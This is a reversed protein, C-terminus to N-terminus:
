SSSRGKGREVLRKTYVAIGVPGYETFFRRLPAADAGAKQAAADLMSLLLVARNFEDCAEAQAWYAEAMEQLGFSYLFGYLDAGAKRSMLKKCGGDYFADPTQFLAQLLEELSSVRRGGVDLARQECFSNEFWYGALEPERQSLDEISRVLAKTEEEAQIGQTYDLWHSVCQRRLLESCVSPNRSRRMKEALERLGAFVYGKWVLPGPTFLHKLFVALGKDRDRMRWTEEAKQAARALDPRFSKFFNEFYKEYLLEVGEKWHAADKAIGEFLSQEDRYEEGLMRFPRPWEDEEAGGTYSHNELWRKVDAYGFRYRSDYRCLGCLLNELERRHPDTRTLPLRGQRVALTMMASTEKTETSTESWYVFHGEFLSGLTVGLSYYDSAEDFFFASGRASLALVTEPARYGDTGATHVTAGARALKAVGFDGIVVRGDLLYGAGNSKYGNYLTDSCTIEWGETDLPKISPMLTLNAADGKDTLWDDTDVVESYDYTSFYHENYREVTVGRIDHLFQLTVMAKYADTTSLNVDTYGTQMYRNKGLIVKKLNPFYFLDQFTTMNYDLEIVDLSKIDEETYSPGFEKILWQSFGASWVQEDLYLTDPVFTITDFCGELMGKRQVVIAEDFDVGVGEEEPLLFVYNRYVPLFGLMENMHSKIDWERSQGDTTTFNLTMEKLNDNDEDLFVALRDKAKDGDESRLVYFNVVGRTFTRLDEHNETYPRAYATEVISEMSDATLNSVTVTYIADDLNEIFISDMLNEDSAIDKPEVFRVEPENDTEAQWTIKVRDINADLNGKWKVKLREWGPEIELDSCKGVYRIMGDGLYEDYTEELSECGFVLFAIFLGVIYYLKRKM